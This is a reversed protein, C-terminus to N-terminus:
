KNTKLYLQLVSSMLSLRFLNEAEQRGCLLGDAELQPEGKRYFVKHLYVWILDDSFVNKCCITFTPFSNIDQGKFSLGLCSGRLHTLKYLDRKTFGILSNGGRLRYTKLSFDKIEKLFAIEVQLQAFGNQNRIIVYYSVRVRVIRVM